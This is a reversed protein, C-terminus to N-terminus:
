SEPSFIGPFSEVLETVWRDNNMALFARLVIEENVNDQIGNCSRFCQAGFPEQITAARAAGDVSAENVLVVERSPLDVYRDGNVIAISGAICALVDGFVDFHTHHDFPM